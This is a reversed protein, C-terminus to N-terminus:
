PRVHWSGDEDKVYKKRKFPIVELLKATGKRNDILYVKNGIQVKTAM